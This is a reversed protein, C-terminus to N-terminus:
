LSEDIMADIALDFKEDTDYTGNAIEGRIREVLESRVEPMANLKALFRAKDSVEVRDDVRRARAPKRTEVSEPRVEVPVIRGTAGSNIPSLNTM